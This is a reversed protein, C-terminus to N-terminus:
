LESIFFALFHDVNDRESSKQLSNTYYDEKIM